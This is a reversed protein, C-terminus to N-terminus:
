QIAGIQRLDGMMGPLDLGAPSRGSRSILDPSVIAYVEEVYAQHFRVSLKQLAGWTVCTFSDGDYGVYPIAHGGWSGPASRGTRGDGVVDWEGHAQATLPLRVGIYVGGLLEIAQRIGNVDDVHITAYALIKDAGMGHHRWANLVDLEVRGDDTPGGPIGHTSPPTGTEWYFTEVTALRPTRQTGALRTWAEILHGAAAVTCDGLEDNGYMPWTKVPPAAIAAPPTPLAAALYRELALTRPDFRAPRRGLKMNARDTM